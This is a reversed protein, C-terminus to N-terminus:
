FNCVKLGDSGVHDYQGLPEHFLVNNKLLHIWNWTEQGPFSVWPDQNMENMSIILNRRCFRIKDNLVSVVVLEDYDDAYLVAITDTLFGVRHCNGVTWERYMRHRASDIEVFGSQDCNLRYLTVKFDRRSCDIEEIALFLGNREMMEVVGGFIPPDGYSSTASLVTTNLHHFHMKKNQINWRYFHVKYKQDKPEETCDCDSMGIILSNDRFVISGIEHYKNEAEVFLIGLLEVEFQKSISWFAM